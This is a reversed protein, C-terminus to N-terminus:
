RLSLAGNDGPPIAILNDHHPASAHDPVAELTGGMTKGGSLRFLQWGRQFFIDLVEEHTGGRMPFLRSFEFVVTPPRGFAGDLLGAAGRLALLEGGEIDIKILRVHRLGLHRCIDDITTAPVSLINVDAKTFTRHEWDGLETQSSLRVQNLSSIEELFAAVVAGDDSELVKGVGACTDGMAAFTVRGVTDSVAKEVLEIQAGGFLLASRRIRNASVPDAEVAVVRAGVRAMARSVVGYAAGIDLVTDGLGVQGSLWDLFGMEDGADILFKRALISDDVPQCLVRDGSRLRVTIEEGSKLEDILRAVILERALWAKSDSGVAWRRRFSDSAILWELRSRPATALKAAITRHLYRRAAIECPDGSAPLTIERLYAAGEPGIVRLDFTAIGDLLQDLQAGTLDVAGAFGCAESLLPNQALVDPRKLNNRLTGLRRGNCYLEIQHRPLATTIWGHVCLRGRIPDIRVGSVNLRTPTADGLTTLPVRVWIAKGRAPRIGVQVCSEITLGELCQIVRESWEPRLPPESGDPSVAFGSIGGDLDTRLLFTRAARNLEVLSLPLLHQGRSRTV